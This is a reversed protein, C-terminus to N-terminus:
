FLRKIITGDGRRTIYVNGPQPHEIRMGRLDFYATASKTSTQLDTIALMDKRFIFSVTSDYSIQIDTIPMGLMTDGNANTNFMKAAPVSTDTLEHNDVSDNVCPYATGSLYPSHGATRGLHRESIIDGWQAYDMNDAHFYDYRHHEPQNNVSNGASLMDDVHAILLGQGPACLDWGTWQRNEIVLFEKQTHHVVYAKGGESVPKMGEVVTPETLEELPLWGLIHREYASYNCPCWGNNIFNGGDMLDWEDVISFESSSKSTPYLDPLGLSHSYEHCITGIGCLRVADTSYFREASASYAAVSTNGVKLAGFTSTNPWIFGMGKTAAENGGFGAYICIIQEASGDGNWDYPAFDVDLSDALLQVAQRISAGGYDGNKNSNVPIKVPGYVDFVPKFMGGSQAKFYDAVCGPGRGENYGEENFIRNYRDWPEESAFDRDAFSMLVVAVPYVRTSDWQTKPSPLRRPAKSPSRQANFTSRDYAEAITTDNGLCDYRVFRSQAISVILSLHYTVLMVTVRRLWKQCDTTGNKKM